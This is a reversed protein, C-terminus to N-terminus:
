RNRDMAELAPRNIASHNNNNDSYCLSHVHILRMQAYQLRCKWEHEGLGLCNLSASAPCTAERAEYTCPRDQTSSHRVSLSCTWHDPRRLPGRSVGHSIRCEAGTSSLRSALYETFSRRPEMPHRMANLDSTTQYCIHTVFSSKRAVM